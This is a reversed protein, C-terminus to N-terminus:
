HQGILEKVRHTRYTVAHHGIPYNRTSRLRRQRGPTRAARVPDANPIAPSAALEGLRCQVAHHPRERSGGATATRVVQGPDRPRPNPDARPGSAPVPRSVPKALRRRIEASM